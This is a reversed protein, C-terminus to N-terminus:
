RRESASADEARALRDHLRSRLEDGDYERVERLRRQHVVAGTGVAAAGILGALGLWKWWRM